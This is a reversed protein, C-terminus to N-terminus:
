ATCDGASTHAVELGIRADCSWYREYRCDSALQGRASKPRMQDVKRLHKQALPRDLSRGTETVLAIEIAPGTVTYQRRGFLSRMQFEEVEVDTAHDRHGSGKASPGCEGRHGSAMEFRVSRDKHLSAMVSSENRVTHPIRVRASRGSENTRLFGLSFSRPTTPATRHRRLHFSLSVKVQHRGLPMGLSMGEAGGPLRGM